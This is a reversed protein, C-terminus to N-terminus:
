PPVYGGPAVRNAMSASYWLPVDTRPSLLFAHSSNYVPVGGSPDTNYPYRIFFNYRIGVTAPIMASLTHEVVVAGDTYETFSWAVTGSTLVEVVDETGDADFPDWYDTVKVAIIEYTASGSYVQPPANIRALTFTLKGGRFGIHNQELLTAVFLTDELDYFDSPGYHQWQGTYVGIVQTSQNMPTWQSRASGDETLLAWRLGTPTRHNWQTGQMLYDGLYDAYLGSELFGQGRNVATYAAPLSKPVATWYDNSDGSGDAMPRRWTRTRVGYINGQDFAIGADDESFPWDVVETLCYTWGDYEGTYYDEFVNARVVEMPGLVFVNETGTKGNLFNAM